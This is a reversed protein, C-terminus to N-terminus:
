QFYTINYTNTILVTHIDLFDKVLKGLLITISVAVPLLNKRHTNVCSFSIFRRRSEFECNRTPSDSAKVMPGRVFSPKSSM